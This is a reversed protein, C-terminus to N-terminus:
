GCRKARDRLADSRRMQMHGSVTSYALLRISKAFIGPCAEHMEQMQVHPHPSTQQENKEKISNLPKRGRRVRLVIGRGAKLAGGAAV